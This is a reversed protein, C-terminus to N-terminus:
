TVDMHSHTARGGADMCDLSTASYILAAEIFFHGM